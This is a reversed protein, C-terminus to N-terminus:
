RSRLDQQDVLTFSAIREGGGGGCGVDKECDSGGGGGGATVLDENLQRIASRGGGAVVM